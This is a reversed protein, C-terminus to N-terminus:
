ILVSTSIACTLSILASWFISSSLVMPRRHATILLLDSNPSTTLTREPPVIMGCLQQNGAFAWVM